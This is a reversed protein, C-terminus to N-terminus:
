SRTGISVSEDSELLLRRNLEYTDTGDDIKVTAEGRFLKRPQHLEVGVPNVRLRLESSQRRVQEATGVEGEDRRTILRETEDGDLETTLTGETDTRTETTETEHGTPYTGRRRRQICRRVDDRTCHNGTSDIDVSCM